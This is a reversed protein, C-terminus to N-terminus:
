PTDATQSARYEALAREEAPIRIGLLLAANLLTYALATRWAGVALPATAIELAVVAYNPHRLYRFPGGTVRQGGPVILIRTNWYRGLTRIVWYRLPQALIFLALAWPNVRGRGARGELLTLLMWTPHLVFFLPYHSQGYERAGHERAWRENSRAVRLELLRQVVLFAFLWGATTRAKM